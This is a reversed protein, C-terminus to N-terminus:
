EELEVPAGSLEAANCFMAKRLSAPPALLRSPLTFSAVQSAGADLDRLTTTGVTHWSTDRIPTGAIM